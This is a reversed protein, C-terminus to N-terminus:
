IQHYDMVTVDYHTCHHKLDGADRNNIWGNTLTSDFILAGRWQGKHPPDVPWRQIGKVFPWHCPFHKWKIDDDHTGSVHWLWSFDVSLFLQKIPMVHKGLSMCGRSWEFNYFKQGHSSLPKRMGSERDSSDVSWMHIHVKSTKKVFQQAFLQTALSIGHRERSAM